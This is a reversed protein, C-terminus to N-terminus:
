DRFFYRGVHSNYGMNKFINQSANFCFLNSLAYYMILNVVTELINEYFIGVICINQMKSQVDLDYLIYILLSYSVIVWLHFPFPSTLQFASQSSRYNFKFISSTSGIVKQCLQQSARYCKKLAM